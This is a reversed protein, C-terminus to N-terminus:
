VEGAGLLERVCAVFRAAGEAWRDEPGTVDLRGDKATIRLLETANDDALIAIFRDPKAIEFEQGDIIWYAPEEIRM